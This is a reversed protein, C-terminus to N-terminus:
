AVGVSVNLPVSTYCKENSVGTIKSKLKLDINFLFVKKKLNEVLVPKDVHELNIKTNKYVEYSEKYFNYIKINTQGKEIFNSLKAFDINFSPLKITVNRKM